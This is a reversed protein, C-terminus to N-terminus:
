LCAGASHPAIAHLAEQGMQLALDFLAERAAVVATESGERPLQVAASYVDGLAGQLPKGGADPAALNGWPSWVQRAFLLCAAGGQEAPLFV